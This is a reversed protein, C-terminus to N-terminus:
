QQQQQIKWLRVLPKSNPPMQQKLSPPVLLKLRRVLPKSNPPV